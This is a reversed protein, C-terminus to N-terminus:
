GTNVGKQQSPTHSEPQHASTNAEPPKYPLCLLLVIYIILLSFGAAGQVMTVVDRQAENLPVHSLLVLVIGFSIYNHLKHNNKQMQKLGENAGWLYLSSSLLSSFLFFIFLLDTLYELTSLRTAGYLRLVVYRVNVLHYHSLLGQALICYMTYYCGVLTLAGTTYRIWKTDPSIHPSMILLMEFGLYASVVQLAGKVTWEGGQLFFPTLRTLTFDSFQLLELAIIWISLLFLVISTKSMTYLGHYSIYLIVAIMISGTLTINVTVDNTFQLMKVYTFVIDFAICIYLLISFSILSNAIWKPFHHQLVQFISQRQHKQLGVYMLRMVGIMLLTYGIMMIWSNTGFERTVVSPLQFFLVGRVVMFILTAVAYGKLQPNM